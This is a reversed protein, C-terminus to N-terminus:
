KNQARRKALIANIKRREAANTRPNSQLKALEDGLQDETMGEYGTAPPAGEPPAIDANSPKNTGAERVWAAAKLTADIPNDWNLSALYDDYGAPANTLGAQELISRSAETLDLDSGQSRRDSVKGPTPLEGTAQYHNVMDEMAIQTRAKQLEEPTHGLAAALRALEDGQEGLSTQIEAIRKDKVSQTASQFKPNDLIRTVLEDIDQGGSPQSDPQQSPPPTPAGDEEVGASEPNDSM